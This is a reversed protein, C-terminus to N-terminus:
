SAAGFLKEESPLVLEGEPKRASTTWQWRAPTHSYGSAVLKVLGLNELSAMAKDRSPKSGFLKTEWVQNSDFTKRGLMAGWLRRYLQYSTALGLAAHLPGLMMERLTVYDRRGAVMRGDEWKRGKHHQHMMVVTELVSCVQDIIRRSAEQGLPILDVLRDGYPIIPTDINKLSGQFAHHRDIVYKTDLEVAGRKYREVRRKGIRRTLEESEDVYLQLLRNLDDGFISGATTEEGYAVPGKISQVEGKWDAAGGAGQVSTIRKVEKGSLLQRLVMNADAVAPDKSHRREGSIILKHSLSDPGNERVFNFLGANTHGVLELKQDDPILVGAKKLLTTKGMGTLGRTIVALPDNLIRSTFGTYALRSNQVEGEIGVARVDFSVARFLDPEECLPRLAKEKLRSRYREWEQREQDSENLEDDLAEVKPM